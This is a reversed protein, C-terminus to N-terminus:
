SYHQDLSVHILFRIDGIYSEETSILEEIIQRRRLSRQVAAVDISVKEFPISDESFRPASLSARSSRETRSRCNSLRHHRHSRSIASASAISISASQVAEIFGLSSGSSSLRRSLRRRVSRQYTGSCELNEWGTDPSWVNGYDRQSVRRHLSKMWRSFPRRLKANEAFSESSPVEQITEVQIQPCSPRARTATARESRAHQTTCNLTTFTNIDDLRLEELRSPLHIDYLRRLSDHSDFRSIFPFGATWSFHRSSPISRSVDPLASPNVLTM